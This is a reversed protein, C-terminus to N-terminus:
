VSVQPNAKFAAYAGGSFFLKAHMATLTGDRKVGTRLIIVAPHRHAGAAIEESYSWVMKVPKGSQKALFYCIGSDLLSTKGGFDGGVSLIHVKIQERAIGLDAALRDRLSFPAKNSAWIEIQGNPNIRVTCAQPEIYGHHTLPTRFTHEFIRDAQRFGGELDGNEGVMLSQLNPLDLDRPPANKYSGPNEHILQAGPKIAEVPDFLSPMEEYVVDVLRLAEEAAERNEAAVAVIPEGVYRVRERALLPMDKMRLGVLVAPLDAATLVASVKPVQKSATVDIKALRAHPVSSRLVAGWLAGPILFDAAYQTKGTVKDVGEARPLPKGITQYTM